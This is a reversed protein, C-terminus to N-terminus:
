DKILKQIQEERHDSVNKFHFNINIMSDMVFDKYISGKLDIYYKSNPTEYIDYIEGKNLNGNFDRICKFAGIYKGNDIKAM